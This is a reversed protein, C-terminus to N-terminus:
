PGDVLSVDTSTGGMDLTLLREFGAARARGAAGVLGGAPGSLVTRVPERAAAAVGILGGNSQMVRLGGPVHRALARLHADMLPGVYANVVTTATREYERYERVLRHSATTHVGLRRLARVVAAEHRPDLYAHLLCIAIAQPRARRVAAL